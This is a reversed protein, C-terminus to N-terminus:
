NYNANIETQAKTAISDMAEKPTQSQKFVCNFAAGYFIDPLKGANCMEVNIIQKHLYNQTLTNVSDSDDCYLQNNAVIQSTPINTRKAIATLLAGSANLDDTSQGAFLGLYRDNTIVTSYDSATPGKPLPLIGYKFSTAGSSVAPLVAIGNSGFFFLAKGKTFLNLEHMYDDGKGAIFTGDKQIDQTTYYKDSLGQKFYNQLYTLIDLVTGDTGNFIYKTSTYAFPSSWNTYILNFYHTPYMASSVVASSGALRKYAQSVALFRDDTWQGQSVMQYLNGLNYKKVLDMNFFLLDQEPWDYRVSVGFVRSKNSSILTAVPDWQQKSDTGVGVEKVTRLDVGNNTNILIKAGDSALCDIINFYATGSAKSATTKSVVTDADPFQFVKITCNYDKQIQTIAAARAIDAKTAGKGSSYDSSWFTGFIYKKKKLDMSTETLSADRFTGDVGEISARNVITAGGKNSATKPPKITKNNLGITMERKASSKGFASKQSSYNQSAYSSATTKNAISGLNITSAAQSSAAESSVGAESSSDLASTESSTVANAQQKPKCATFTASLMVAAMVIAAIRCPVKKNAM